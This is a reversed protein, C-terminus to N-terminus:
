NEKEGFDIKHPERKSHMCFDWCQDEKVQFKAEFEECLEEGHRMRVKKGTPSPDYEITVEDILVVRGWQQSDWHHRRQAFDKHKEKQGPRWFPKKRPIKLRFGVEKLIKDVTSHGLGVHAVNTIEQLSLRPNEEVVELVRKKKAKTLTSPRRSRPADKVDGEREDGRKVAYRVRSKPIGLEAAIKGYSWKTHKRLTYIKTNLEERESLGQKRTAM